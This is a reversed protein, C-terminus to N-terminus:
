VRGAARRAARLGRYSAMTTTSLAGGGVGDFDVTGFRGLTGVVIVHDPGEM